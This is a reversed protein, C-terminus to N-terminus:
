VELAVEPDVLRGWPGGLVGGLVELSTWPGELSRRSLHLSDLARRWVEVVPLSGRVRVLLRWPVWGSAVFPVFRLCFRSWFLVSVRGLLLFSNQRLELPM